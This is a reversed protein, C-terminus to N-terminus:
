ASLRTSSFTLRRLSPQHWRRRLYESCILTPPISERPPSCKRLNCIRKSQSLSKFAPYRLLSNIRLSSNSPLHRRRRSGSAIRLRFNQKRSPRQMKQRANREATTSRWRPSMGKTRSTTYYTQLVAVVCGSRRWETLKLSLDYSSDGEVTFEVVFTHCCAETMSSAQIRRRFKGQKPEDTGGWRCQVQAM